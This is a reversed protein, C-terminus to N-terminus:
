IDAELTCNYVAQGYIRVSIESDKREAIVHVTGEKGIENGQEVMIDETLKDKSIYKLCYAGMVGSATGTVSDEVTGLYPSNFHRGHMTHKKNCSGFTFPHISSRPNEILIKPFQETKPSMAAFYKLDRIPVILTWSGTWGYCVPYNEYYADVPLGLASFLKEKDSNFFRFKANAQEMMVEESKHSYRLNIVGAKTEAKLSFDEKISREEILANVAAMTAHGCLDTEYSPTFYRLRVDAVDSSCVFCSENFGVAKAIAQMQAESFNDANLMVGAPNGKGPQKTFADYRDLKIKM